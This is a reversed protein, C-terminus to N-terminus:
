PVPPAGTRFRRTTAVIRAIYETGHQELIENSHKDALTVHAVMFNRLMKLVDLGRVCGRERVKASDKNSRAFDMLAAGFGGGMARFAEVSDIKCGFHEEVDSLIAAGLEESQLLIATECARAMQLLVNESVDSKQFKYGERPKGESDVMKVMLQDYPRLLRLGGLEGDEVVIPKLINYYDEYEIDQYGTPSLMTPPDRRQGLAIERLQKLLEEPVERMLPTVDHNFEKALKRSLRATNGKITKTSLLEVLYWAMASPRVEGLQGAEVVLQQATPVEVDINRETFTASWSSLLEEAVRVASTSELPIDLPVYTLNDIFRRGNANSMRIASLALVMGSGSFGLHVFPLTTAQKLINVTNEILVKNGFMGIRQIEDILFFVHRQFSDAKIFISRLRNDPESTPPLNALPPLGAKMMGDELLRCLGRTFMDHTDKSPAEAEHDVPLSTCDIHVVSPTLAAGALAEHILPPVVRTLVATKGSKPTLTVALSTPAGKLSQSLWCRVTGVVNAHDYLFPPWPSGPTGEFELRSIGPMDTAVSVM